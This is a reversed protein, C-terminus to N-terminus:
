HRARLALLSPPEGDSELVRELVLGAALVGNLLDALPVHRAGVRARAGGPNWGHFSLETDHYGPRLLRGEAVPESFHGFFCPHLGVHVFAGGHGLVRASEAVVAAHDDVDTHIMLAVVADFRGAEFPLDAADARVLEVDDGARGRAVRLQDASVDVGTVTWGLERLLAFHGGGGCGLDLLLGPGAGLLERVADRVRDVWAAQSGYAWADYWDALGDYRAGTEVV